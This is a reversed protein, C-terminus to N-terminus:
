VQGADGFSPIRPPVDRFWLTSFGLTEARQALEVQGEMTPVAGEFAEIPFFVGLTLKDEEFMQHFGRNRRRGAAVAPERFKLGLDLRVM